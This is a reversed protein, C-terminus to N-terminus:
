QGAEENVTKLYDEESMGMAKCVEQDAKSLKSGTKGDSPKVGEVLEEGSCIVPQKAVFDDFGDPDKKAYAIAWDRQAPSIKGNKVADSVRTEAANETSATEIKEVREALEDYMKRPVYESPDPDNGESGSESKATVVEGVKKAVDEAAATEDLKLVKAVATVTTRNSKAAAVVEDAEADPKLGLEKAISQLATSAKAAAKVSEVARSQDADDPLGLAARLEKLLEDMGKEKSAIATLDMAPDNVLGARLIAKIQGDKTHTFVPSLFRYEGAEIAKRAAETWQVRGWIGDPRAQLEKIWGAAPARGGVGKIAAFDTQHDYDIPPEGAAVAQRTTEIVEDMNAIQFPGRGDRLNFRGNRILHVWEPAQGTPLLEVAATAILQDDTRCITTFLHEVPGESSFAPQVGAMDEALTPDPQLGIGLRLHSLHRLREELDAAPM